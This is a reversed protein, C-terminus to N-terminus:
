HETKERFEKRIEELLSPDKAVEAAMAAMAQITQHLREYAYPSDVLDLASAEHVMLPEPSNLGVDIYVTPCVHSVNGIDSSGAMEAAEEKTARDEIGVASLHRDALERLVPLKVYNDFPLETLRHEMTAGTMLAAGRAVNVVKESVTDLYARESSRIYYECSAKDVVINPAQGGERIVGHIRVDPRVYQRLSNIGIYMLQVAELANIGDWPAASAHSAKGYFEFLFSDMALLHSDLSTKEGLHAQIVLDVDDFVTGRAMSVKAGFTEEAPTGIVVATLGIEEAFEALVVAAGVTSAAIWNHGCAHANKKEEGYGPLADYEALFAIKPGYTGFEARFATPLDAYPFEVTFGKSALYDSLYKSSVFEELGLEPHEFLFHSISEFEARGAKEAAAIKAFLTEVSVNESM